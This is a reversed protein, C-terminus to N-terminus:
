YDKKDEMKGQYRYDTDSSVCNYEKCSEESISKVELPIEENNTDTTKQYVTSLLPIEQSM